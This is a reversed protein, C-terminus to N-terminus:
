TQRCVIQLHVTESEKAVKTCNGFVYIIINFVYNYHQQQLCLCGRNGLYIQPRKYAAYRSTFPIVNIPAVM